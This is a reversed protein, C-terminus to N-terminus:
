AAMCFGFGALSCHVNLRAALIMEGCNPAKSRGYGKIIILGRNIKEFTRLGASVDAESSANCLIIDIAESATGTDRGEFSPQIQDEFRQLLSKAFGDRPSIRQNGRPAYIRVSSAGSGVFVSVALAPITMSQSLQSVRVETNKKIKCTASQLFDIMSHMEYTVSEANFLRLFAKTASTESYIFDRRNLVVMENDSIVGDPEKIRDKIVDFLKV